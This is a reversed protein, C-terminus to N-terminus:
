DAAYQYDSPLEAITVASASLTNAQIFGKQFTCLSLCLGASVLAATIKSPRM